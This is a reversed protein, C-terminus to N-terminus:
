ENQHLLLRPFHHLHGRWHHLRRNRDRTRHVSDYNRDRAGGFRHLDDRLPLSARSYIPNHRFSVSFLRLLSDPRFTNPALFRQRVKHYILSYLSARCPFIVLPFSFAVSLVFGLKIIENTFTSAFSLLINGSFSKDSFAVYGFVGVMIYVGTCINVATKVIKNMKEVSPNPLSDYIEFIQLQCSLSMSFIPLCQMIGQPRWWEIDTAWYNSTIKEESELMIQLRGM